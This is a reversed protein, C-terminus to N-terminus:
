TTDLHRDTRRDTQGDTVRRYETSVTIGPTEFLLSGLRKPINESRNLRKAHFKAFKNANKDM